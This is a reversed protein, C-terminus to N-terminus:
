RRLSLQALLRFEEGTIEGFPKGAQRETRRVYDADYYDQGTARNMRDAWDQYYSNGTPTHM